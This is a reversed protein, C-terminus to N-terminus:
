HPCDGWNGLLELFDTIGVGDGDVDCPGTGGWAALLALFDVIGVTGDGDGCDWPCPAGACDPDDGDYLDDGDNDLGIDDGVSWNEQYQPSPNCPNGVNTDATGYYIPSIHEPLPQPDDPHCLVCITVAHAAHHARLGVGSNGITGGYDRGHCGLCGLGPNNATGDSYDLYPNQEDGASHCLNCDTNMNSPGRHMAHKSDQPFITGKPSTGDTFAGHCSQCGDKYRPMSMAAPVAVVVLAAALAAAGVQQARHSWVTGM